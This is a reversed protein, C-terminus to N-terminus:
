DVASYSLTCSIYDIGDQRGLHMMVIVEAPVKVTNMSARGFM